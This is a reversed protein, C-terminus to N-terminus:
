NRSYRWALVLIAFIIILSFLSIVAGLMFSLPRFTLEVTHEGAPVPVARLTYYARLISTPQGDVRAQWGPYHIESLILLAPSPTSVHYTVRSAHPTLRSVRPTTRPAHHTTDLTEGIELGWDGIEELLAVNWRDFNPDAIKQLTATDDATEAQTVLWARPGVSNLRHVYTIDKETPEEYIITSPLYLEKRWTIVYKVNLLEWIREIPMPPALFQDYRLPRLPSAGWLDEIEFPVGYNDYLRFENYVRYPEDPTQAADKKIAAVAAPMQTHWTPPQPYLNTQWNVSFLDFCILAATLTTFVAPFREAAFKWLLWALALLIVLLSAAGLLGYFPSAPTWGTQNLGFFFLFLLLLSFLFLFATLRLPSSAFLRPPSSAHHTIRSAHHTESHSGTEPRRDGTLAKFGYGALVSLSFAVAFAWREQGRFISFGPITLYLPTYLFTNGGFSILLAVFAVIVWFTTHRNPAAFVVWLALILGVIGIYLPSYHSVQGPLLFQIVDVLPFGGAMKDYTGEARVSLLTYEVAPIFQIAALGLGTLLFLAAHLILRSAHLTFRSAHPTFRLDYITFRLYLFYILSLCGVIFASQPHGALLTMGWALGALLLPIFSSPHLIFILKSAAEGNAMRWESVRQNARHLFFLILPLWVDAELVALQQSPYGTLYGSFTFTLAAIVAAARNSTLQRIFLYMFAAALWFHAIAELELAFASFGWPASLLLTLLSPPYFVAAQADAWFPSGAFNYPNWLPLRGASLERVDFTTFAWFQLYFDGPPFSQRDAPNPTLIRWYFLVVLVAFILLILWDLRSWSKM